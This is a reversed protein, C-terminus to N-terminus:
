AVGQTHKQHATSDFAPGVNPNWLDFFQNLRFTLFQDLINPEGFKYHKPTSLM